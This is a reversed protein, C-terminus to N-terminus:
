AEAPPAAEEPQPPKPGILVRDIRNGDMDVVEFRRELAEFSDGIAPVRGLRHMVFGGLTHYLEGEDDLSEVGLLERLESAPLMGDVSLSGDERTAVRPSSTEGWHPLEGVIAELLDTTTIIGLVEGHEGVVLALHEKAARFREVLRLAPFGGPVLIPKRVYEAVPRIKSALSDDFLDQIQLYGAARDLDGRAAPLRSFRSGRLQDLIKDRPEDLDVWEIQFRPTMIESAKRDGLRFVAEVMHREAPEIQGSRAGQLLLMRIEEETMPPEPSRRLPVIKLVLGSSASMVRVLPSAARSLWAIPRAALMAIREPAALAIQKPVLEGLILSLYTIAAVVIGLSVTESHPGIWPLGALSPAMQEAITAGGFAGALTGVLTIGIQVTALMQDPSEAMQLATKARPNGSEALRQLRAKRASVIAIESMAFAGNAIVLVVILAVEFSIEGM